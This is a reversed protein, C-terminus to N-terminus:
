SEETSEINMKGVMDEILENVQSNDSIELSKRVNSENEPSGIYRLGRICEGIANLSIGSGITGNSIDIFGLIPKRQIQRPQDMEFLYIRIFEKKCWVRNEPDDRWTCFKRIDGSMQIIVSQIKTDEFIYSDLPSLNLIKEWAREAKLEPSGGLAENLFRLKPFKVTSTPIFTSVVKGFLGDLDKEAINKKNLWASLMEIEPHIVTIDSGPMNLQLPINYYHAMKLVFEEKKM